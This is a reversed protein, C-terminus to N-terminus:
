IRAITPTKPCIRVASLREPFGPMWILQNNEIKSIWKFGNHWPHASLWSIKAGTRASKAAQTLRGNKKRDPDQGFISWTPQVWCTTGSEIVEYQVTAPIGEITRFPNGEAGFHNLILYKMDKFVICECRPDFLAMHAEQHFDSLSVAQIKYEM